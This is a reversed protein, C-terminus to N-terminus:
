SRPGPVGSGGLGRQSGARLDISRRPSRHRVGDVRGVVLPAALLQDVEQFVEGIVPTRRALIHDAGPQLVGCGLHLVQALRAPVDVALDGPELPRLTRAVRRERALDPNTWLGDDVDGGALGPRVGCSRWSWRAGAGRTRCRRHARSRAGSGAWAGRG